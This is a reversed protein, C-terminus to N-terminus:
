ERPSRDDPLNELNLLERDSPMNGLIDKLEVPKASVPEAKTGLEAYLHNDDIKFKLVGLDKAIELYSRFTNIDM